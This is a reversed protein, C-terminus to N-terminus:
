AADDQESGPTKQEKPPEAEAAKAATLWLDCEAIRGGIANLNAILQQQQALLKAKREEFAKATM